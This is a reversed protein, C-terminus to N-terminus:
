VTIYEIYKMLSSYKLVGDAKQIKKLNETKRTNTKIHEIDYWFSM